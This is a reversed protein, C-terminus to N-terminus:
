CQHGGRYSERPVVGVLRERKCRGEECICTNEKVQLNIVQLKVTQTPLFNPFVVFMNLLTNLAAAVIERIALCVTNKSINEADGVTHLYTGTAVCRLSVCVCQARSRKTANGEYPGVLVVLYRIGESSFRYREYIGEEEGNGFSSRSFFTKRNPSLVSRERGETEVSTRQLPEDCLRLDCYDITVKGSVEVFCWPGEPDNDPNRCKNGPLNVEPIFQKNRSLSQVQLSAWSLCTHGGLTVSIDGTFDLGQNTLCEVPQVKTPAVTTPVFEAEGCIPVHCSEKQVTPDRTFCWPGSDRGDPNRCFNDKLNSGPESSNFERTIPHPFNRWWFQCERGSLTINVDGEYNVGLGVSCQGSICERVSQINDPARPLSDGKCGPKLEEFLTNARRNRVLVQSAAQREM